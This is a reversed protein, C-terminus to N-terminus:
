IIEAPMRLRNPVAVDEASTRSACLAMVERRQKRTGQDAGIVFEAEAVVTTM